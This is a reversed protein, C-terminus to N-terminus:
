CPGFRRHLGKSLYTSTACLTACMPLTPVLLEDQVTARITLSLKHAARVALTDYSCKKMPILVCAKGVSCSPWDGECEARSLRHLLLPMVVDRLPYGQGLGTQLCASFECRVQGYSPNNITGGMYGSEVSSVGVVRQYVAEVCWFCGILRIGITHCTTQPLRFTFYTPLSM